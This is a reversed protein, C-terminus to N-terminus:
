FDFGRYRLRGGIVPVREVHFWSSDRDFEGIAFGQQWNPVGVIYEADTRCLCGQETWNRIGQMDTIHYSELRHTHGSIGSIGWKELEGKASWGSHKRVVTGHYVLFHPRLLFGDSQHPTIDFDKFGLMNPLELCKLGSLKHADTRLYMELRLEHNGPTFDIPGDYVCRLKSFFVKAAEIEDEIPVHQRSVFRSIDYFDVIDGNLVIRDFSDQKILTLIKELLPEDAFPFHLDSLFLVREVAYTSPRGGVDHPLDGEQELKVITQWDLSM